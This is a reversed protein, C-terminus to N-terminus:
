KSFESGTTLLELSKLLVAEQEGLEKQARNKLLECVYDMSNCFDARNEEPISELKENKLAQCKKDANNVIDILTNRTKDIEIRIAACIFDADKETLLIM